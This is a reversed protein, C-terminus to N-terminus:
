RRSSGLGGIVKTAHEGGKPEDPPVFMRTPRKMGLCLGKEREEGEEEESEGQMSVYDVRRRCRCAPIQV